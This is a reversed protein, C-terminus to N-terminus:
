SALLAELKDVLKAFVKCAAEVPAACSLDVGAVRLSDIPFRSGGSRLFKFYDAKEGEGGGLVREALALAASIGTSYKYVYFARYFHPIRLGELDSEAEFVMDPGFYQELLKRYETRFIDATLAEGAEELAHTRKEFEAFMTQRYLTALIDDARKNVIYRQLEPSATSRELYRFLLEENFTSAVEAEFITYGYHMYPNSRASYYSHMSHGGEHALTFLDRISSEKYNMLIYPDASFSGASFAGSRKGKNEYRDAWGGALGARLTDVYEAGLPALAEAIMAVAEDWSAKWHAEPVIPAYTDYHRLEGLKLARKRLAYYRHLPALNAHITAILNDYVSLPVNDPFLAAERASGFGRVRAKIVDKKVSGGFLAALTTKHAEFQKYFATYARRRLDRDSSEMFVSWTSQSLPREGDPTDITGFDFDVNTLVSFADGAIGDAEGQVAIIREEAESLIYPKWRLLRTIYIRFDALLESKLFEEIKPNPIAQIEPTVWSLAAESAAAAITLRGTMTRAENAGEDECQRLDAYYALREELIGLERLFRMLAALASASQALTGKFAPAEAQRKEFEGFGAEWASDNEFLKSLNWKDAEAIESRLPIKTQIM